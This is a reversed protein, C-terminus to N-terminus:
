SIHLGYFGVLALAMLGATILDIPIGRFCRPCAEFNVDERLGAYSTLVLLVGLGGCLAFLLAQGLTYGRLSSLLAAGLSACNASMTQFYAGLRHNLEPLFTRLGWRLLSLSALTLLTFAMLRFYELHFRRLVWNDCLWCLLVSTVMALTLSIGCRRAPVPQRYAATPVNFGLCTVLLFNESLLAALAVGALHASEM